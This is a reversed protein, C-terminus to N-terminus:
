RSRSLEYLQYALMRMICGGMRDLVVQWHEPIGAPGYYAGLLAGAVAAYTDTDGGVAIAARVGEFLSDTTTLAYLAVELTLRAAGRGPPDDPNRPVRNPERWRELFDPPCFGESSALAEAVSQGSLLCTLLAVFAATYHTAEPHLHTVECATRVVHHDFRALNGFFLALPASRMLAGNSPFERAAGQQRLSLGETYSRHALARKTTTGAGLAPVVAQLPSVQDLVNRRMATFLAEVDTGGCAILWKALVAAQDSDDTPRGAPFMPIGTEDAWPNPYSFPVLGDLWAPDMAVRCASWTEYPAGAADGFLLGMLAGVHRERASLAVLAKM